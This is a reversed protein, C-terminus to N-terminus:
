LYSSTKRLQLIHANWEVPFPELLSSLTIETPQRGELIAEAIEPALLSLRLVRTMYSFGLKEHEALEKVTAFDGSELMRKWRFARALAKVLTSDAQQRLSSAPTDTPTVVRKHGGYKRISFPVHVSIKEGM